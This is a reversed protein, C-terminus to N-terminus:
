LDLPVDPGATCTAGTAECHRIALQSLFAESATDLPPESRGVGIVHVRTTKPATPLAGSCAASLRDLEVPQTSLQGNPLAACGQTPIYDTLLVVVDPQRQLAGRLASVPDSGRDTPRLEADILSTVSDLFVPLSRERVLESNGPPVLPKANLCSHWDLTTSAADFYGVTLTSSSQAAQQLVWRLQQDDQEPDTGRTRSRSRDILLVVSPGAEEVAATTDRSVQCDRPSGSTAEPGACAATALALSFTLSALIATRNTTRIV